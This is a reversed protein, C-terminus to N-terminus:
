QHTETAKFPCLKLLQPLFRESAAKFPRVKITQGSSTSPHAMAFGNNKDDRAAFRPGWRAGTKRKNPRLLSPVGFMGIHRRDGHGPGDKMVMEAHRMGVSGVQHMADKAGFVAGVEDLMRVCKTTVDRSDGFGLVNGQKRRSSGRVVKM